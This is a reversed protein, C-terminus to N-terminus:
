LFLVSYYLVPVTAQDPSDMISSFQQWPEIDDIKM